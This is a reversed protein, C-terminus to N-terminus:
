ASVQEELRAKEEKLQEVARKEREMEQEAVIAAEEQERVRDDLEHVQLELRRAEQEQNFQAAEFQQVATYYMEVAEFDERYAEHLAEQHLLSDLM